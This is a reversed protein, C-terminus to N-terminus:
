DYFIEGAKLDKSFKKAQDIRGESARLAMELLFMYTEKANACDPRTIGLKSLDNLLKTREIFQHSSRDLDQEVDEPLNLNVNAEVALLCARIGPELAKFRRSPTQNQIWQFLDTALLIATTIAILSYAAKWNVAIGTVVPADSQLM